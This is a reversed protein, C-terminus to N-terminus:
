RVRWRKPTAFASHWRKPQPGAQVSDSPVRVEASADQAQPADAVAGRPDRGATHGLGLRVAFSLRHFCATFATGSGRLRRVCVAAVATHRKVQDIFYCLLQGYVPHVLKPWLVWWRKTWSAVM